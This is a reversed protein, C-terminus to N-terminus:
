LDLGPNFYFVKKKNKQYDVRFWGVFDPHKRVAMLAGAFKSLFDKRNAKPIGMGMRVGLYGFPVEQMTLVSKIWAMVAKVAKEDNEVAQLVRGALIAPMAEKEYDGLAAIQKRAQSQRNKLEAYIKPNEILLLLQEVSLDQNRMLNARMAVALPHGDGEDCILIGHKQMNKIKTLSLNFKESIEFINM